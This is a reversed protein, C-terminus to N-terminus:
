ASDWEADLDGADEDRTEGDDNRELARNLAAATLKAEGVAIGLKLRAMPTMGYQQEAATIAAERSALYGALPNLTPQGTSGPVIRKSRFARMARHWEEVNIIWRHLGALDLGGSRLAIEAVPSRWYAEWKEITQPLPKKGLETPL